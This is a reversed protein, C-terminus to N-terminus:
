TVNQPRASRRALNLTLWPLALLVMFLAANAPIQLNFDVSSHILIATIGMTASFGMGRMLPDHRRRQALLAAGLCLVVTAALLSSAIVGSESLFELYDNHAHDYFGRIDRERYYPFVTYFSGAGSGTILFDRTQGWAYYDVEDRAETELTTNVIRQQVKELGFWAGVIFIDIVLLSVILVVVPRPSQRFLLLALLGAVLMSAFFGTNGMRSHTLVLTVVMIALYVRLRAKPGLLVQSLHRLRQRWSQPTQEKMSAILLGIGIALNMELYGALHNRNVFTGHAVGKHEVFAFDVGALSQLSALMSQFVAAAVLVQALRRLRTRRNVLLLVLAFVLVYALGKLWASTTAHADVTIPALTVDSGISELALYSQAALPSLDHLWDLPLPVLQLLGYLLWLGLLLLVWRAQRFADTLSLKGRAYGTLWLAALVFVWAQMIAWAWPRNSGLPLPLWVLLALLGGFLFRDAALPRDPGHTPRDFSV